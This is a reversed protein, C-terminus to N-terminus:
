RAEYSMSFNFNFPVCTMEMFILTITWIIFVVATEASANTM